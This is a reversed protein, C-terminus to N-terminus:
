LSDSAAGDSGTAPAAGFRNPEKGEQAAWVIFIIWGILPIFNILQWWGSRDTDHMRRAAVAIFPVLTALAFVGSILSGILEAALSGAVVFLVWWWYESRSARGEFTAYQRFCTQIAEVFTM